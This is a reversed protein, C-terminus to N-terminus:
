WGIGNVGCTAVIVWFCLWKLAQPGLSLRKGNLGVVQVKRKHAGLELRMKDSYVRGCARLWWKWPLSFACGTRVRLNNRCGVAAYGPRQLLVNFCHADAHVSLAMQRSITHVMAVRKNGGAQVVGAAINQFIKSRITWWLVAVSHVHHNVAPM